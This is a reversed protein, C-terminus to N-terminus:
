TKLGALPAHVRRLLQQVIQLLEVVVDQHFLTCNVFQVFGDTVLECLQWFIDLFHPFHTLANRVFVLASRQDDLSSVVALLQVLEVFHLVCLFEHLLPFGAFCLVERKEGVVALLELLGSYHLVVWLGLFCCGDRFM